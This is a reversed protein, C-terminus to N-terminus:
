RSACSLILAISPLVKCSICKNVLCVPRVAFATVVVACSATLTGSGGMHTAVTRVVVVM